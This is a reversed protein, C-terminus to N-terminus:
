GVGEGERYPQEPSPFRSPHRSPTFPRPEAGMPRRRAAVWGSCVGSGEVLEPRAPSPSTWGAQVALRWLRRASGVACEPPAQHSGGEGARGPGTRSSLRPSAAQTVPHPSRAPSPAWRADGRRWGGRACVARALPFRTPLCSPLGCLWAGGVWLGHVRLNPKWGSLSGNYAPHVATDNM